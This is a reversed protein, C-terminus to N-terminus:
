PQFDGSLESPRSYRVLGYKKLTEKAAIWWASTRSVKTDPRALLDRRFKVADEFFADRDVHARERSHYEKRRTTGNLIADDATADLEHFCFDLEAEYEDDTWLESNGFLNISQRVDKNAREQKGNTGPSAPPGPLPVVKFSQLLRLFEPTAFERDFKFVLPLKGAKLHAHVFEGGVLAGKRRTIEKRLTCRTCDDLIRISYRRAGSQVDRSLTVFDISHAVDPHTFEYRHLGARRERIVEARIQKALKRFEDRTIRGRYRNWLPALGFTVSRRHGLARLEACLLIRFAIDEETPPRPPAPVLRGERAEQVWRGFSTPPVGVVRLYETLDSGTDQVQRATEVIM